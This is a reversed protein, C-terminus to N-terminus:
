GNVNDAAVTTEINQDDGAIEEGSKPTGGQGQNNILVDYLPSNEDITITGGNAFSKEIAELGIIFNYFDQREESAGYAEALIRFYESEGEAETNAAIVQADSIIKRVEADTASRINQADREGNARYEAAIVQRESIMREYVASKNANPLDLVKIENATITIGYQDMSIKSLIKDGLSGDKGSIVEDQTISSIVNKMANYVVVDIRGQAVSESSLTQYYVKPSTVQWTVYCNAIMNKKDSTIVESAPVDYLREGVYISNTNQIFPIKFFIGPETKIDVVEGFQMILVNYNVRNYGVFSYAVLLLLIIAAAVIIKGVISKTM